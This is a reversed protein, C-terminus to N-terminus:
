RRLISRFFRWTIRFPLLALKLVGRVLKLPLLLLKLFLLPPKFFLKIM